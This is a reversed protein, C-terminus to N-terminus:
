VINLENLRKAIATGMRSIESVPMDPGYDVQYYQCPKVLRPNNLLLPRYSLLLIDRKGKKRSIRYMEVETNIRHMSVALTYAKGMYEYQAMIRHEM